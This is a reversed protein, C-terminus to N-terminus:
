QSIGSFLRRARLLAAPRRMMNMTWFEASFIARYALTHARGQAERRSPGIVSPGDAHRVPSPIVHLVTVGTEWTRRVVDDLPRNFRKASEVLRLAGARNVYYALAGWQAQGPLILRHEDTLPVGAICGSEYHWPDRREPVYLKILAPADMRLNGIADIIVPLNADLTFDDEFVFGGPHEGQAVQEWAKRHSLGAGIEAPSLDRIWRYLIGKRKVHNKLENEGLKAGDIAAVRTNPIRLDDLQGAAREWRDRSRDLNIVYVPLAMM